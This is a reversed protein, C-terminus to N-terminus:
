IYVSQTQVTKQPVYWCFLNFLYVVKIHPFFWPLVPFSAHSFTLCSPLLYYHLCVWQERKCAKLHTHTYLALGTRKHVLWWDIVLISLLIRTVKVEWTEQVWKLCQQGTLGPWRPFFRLGKQPSPCTVVPSVPLHPLWQAVAVGMLLRLMMLMDSSQLTVAETTQALGHVQLLYVLTHNFMNAHFWSCLRCHQKM